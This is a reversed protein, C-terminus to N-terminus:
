DHLQRRLPRADQVAAPHLLPICRRILPEPNAFMLLIRAFVASVCVSLSRKSLDTSTTKPRATTTAASSSKVESGKLQKNNLVHSSSPTLPVGREKNLGVHSYRYSPTSTFQAFRAERQQKNM